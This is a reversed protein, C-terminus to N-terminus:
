DYIRDLMVLTAFRLSSIRICLKLHHFVFDNSSLRHSACLSSIYLKSVIQYFHCFTTSEVIFWVTIFRVYIHKSYGWPASLIPLKWWRCSLYCISMHTRRGTLNPYPMEGNKHQHVMEFLSWLLFDGVPPQVLKRFKWSPSTINAKNESKSRPFTQQCIKEGSTM